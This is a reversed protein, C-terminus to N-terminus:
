NLIFESARQARESTIMHVQRSIKGRISLNISRPLSAMAQSVSISFYTVFCQGKGRFIFHFGVTINFATSIFHHFYLYSILFSTFIFHHYGTALGNLFIFPQWSSLQLCSKAAFLLNYASDQVYPIKVFLNIYHLAQALFITYKSINFFM